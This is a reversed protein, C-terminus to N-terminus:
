EAWSIKMFLREEIEGEEDGELLSVTFNMPSQELVAKMESVVAPWFDTVTVLASRNGADAERRCVVGIVKLLREKQRQEERKDEQKQQELKAAIVEATRRALSQRTM